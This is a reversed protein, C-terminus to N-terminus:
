PGFGKGLKNAIALGVQHPKADAAISMSGARLHPISEVQKLQQAMGPQSLLHTLREQLGRAIAHRDESRFGKLVLNDIHVIVRRM